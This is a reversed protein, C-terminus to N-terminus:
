YKAVEIILCLEILGDLHRDKNQNQWWVTTSQRVRLSSRISLRDLVEAFDESCFTLICFSPALREKVM